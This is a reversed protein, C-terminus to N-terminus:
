NPGVFYRMQVSFSQYNKLSNNDSITNESVLLCLAVFESVRVRHMSTGEDENSRHEEHNLVNEKDDRWFIVWNPSRRQVDLLLQGFEVM